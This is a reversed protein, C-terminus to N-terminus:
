RMGFQRELFAFMDRFAAEPTEYDTDMRHICEIGLDDMAKKLYRGFNAHHINGDTEQQKQHFLFAPPDDKTLHAIPSADRLRTSLEEDVQATDWNWNPPLGFLQKLAPEDYARGPVVNRIERPDYTSQMQLAIACTLRTSQREVPEESEPKAMDDHFALWLSIGAGASGGFAAIRSTDVNWEASKSRIFQIARAADHMQAPYPAHQSLRYNTAAFSIGAQMCDRFLQRNYGEKDGGLFGGGHIFVLVPTPKDSEAKWFDLVNREHPGYPVNAYTPAIDLQAQHQERFDRAEQMTLVGDKNADAEPFRRLFQKLRASTDSTEPQASVTAALLVSGLVALAVAYPCSRPMALM